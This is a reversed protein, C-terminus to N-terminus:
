LYTEFFILNSDKALARSIPRVWSNCKDFNKKKNMVDVFM